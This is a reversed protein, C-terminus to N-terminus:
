YQEAFDCFRMYPAKWQVRLMGTPGHRNKKFDVEAVGRDPTYDHYVEDRYLTM